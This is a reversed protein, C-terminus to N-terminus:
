KKKKNDERVLKNIEVVSGIPIKELTSSLDKGMTSLLSIHTKNQYVVYGVSKMIPCPKKADRIQSALNNWGTEGLEEADAWVVEVLEYDKDM